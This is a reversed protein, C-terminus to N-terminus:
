FEIFSTVPLHDSPYRNDNYIDSLVKYDYVQIQPSVFVYDIRGGPKGQFVGGPFGTGEVGQRETKTVEYADNLVEKIAAIQSTQPTSNFDGTIITPTDGAIEKIKKAILPGSEQKAIQKRWYFHVNFFFFEKGSHKEKFKGWNCIRRDTADWGISPIEPTESLWFVGSDLLTFQNRKYLIAANHSDGTGGYPHAVVDFAPLLEKLDNIQGADGEQTGVIDFAHQRILRALPAKRTDWANGSEVDMQANYRINYAAVRFSAPIPKASQFLFIFFFCAIYALITKKSKM